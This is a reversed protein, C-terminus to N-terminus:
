MGAMVIKGTNKNNSLYNHAEEADKWDFSRDIVPSVTGDELLPQVADLFSNSLETKYDVSRSRLTSGMIKLRKKLFPALSMNQLKHGGLFSLYVLRCDMSLVDINKEWYSAGIFDIILDVTNEGWENNIEEAFNEQKYNITLVAGLNNCTDLKERKSATTAIRADFLHKALQIASTGVGSGGAHVLVTEGKQLKATWSLTQWATLFTEPVGAAQQFSLNEPIPMAMKEPIVCYEAYGGGPLLGYVKDGINWQDVNEGTKEVVGAMELGLIESAGKPPPYNGARQNLAARNLATAQIKVLVEHDAPEPTPVEGVKLSSDKGPNIVQIAKM